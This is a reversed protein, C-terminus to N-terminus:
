GVESGLEYGYIYLTVTYDVDQGLPLPMGPLYEIVEWFTEITNEKVSVSIYSFLYTSTLPISYNYPIPGNTYNTAGFEYDVYAIVLPCFGLSHTYTETDSPSTEGSSATFTITQKDVLMLSPYRSDLYTDGIASTNVDEGDKSIKIGVDSM